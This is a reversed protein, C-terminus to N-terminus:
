SAPKINQNIHFLNAPDYRQKIQALREFNGRYSAEVREEGEDEMMMNVYAGGASTPHLEQWYDQTWETIAASRQGPGPRRRGDVGVWGGGRYAFATADEPM